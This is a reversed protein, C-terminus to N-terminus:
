INKWIGSEIKEWKIVSENEIEGIDIIKKMNRM